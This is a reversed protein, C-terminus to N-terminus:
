FLGAIAEILKKIARSREAPTKAKALNRIAIVVRAWAIPDTKRLFRELWRLFESM